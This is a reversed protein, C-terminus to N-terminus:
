DLYPMYLGRKAAERRGQKKSTILVPESDLHEAWYPQFIEIHPTTIVRRCEGGCRRCKPLQHREELPLYVEEQYQCEKCEVQYLPM